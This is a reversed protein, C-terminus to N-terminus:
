CLRKVLAPDMYGLDDIILAFKPLAPEAEAPKRSVAEPERPEPRPAEHRHPKPEPSRVGSEPGPRPKSPKRECGLHGLLQGVGLGLVLAAAAWGLLKPTSPGSGKRGAPKGRKPGAM